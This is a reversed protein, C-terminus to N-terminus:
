AASKGSMGVSTGLGSSVSEGIKSLIGKGRQWGAKAEAYADPLSRIQFPDVANLAINKPSFASNVQQKLVNGAATSAGKMTIGGGQENSLRNKEFETPKASQALRSPALVHNLYQAQEDPKAAAFDKDISSLYKMQDQPQAALFDKDQLASALPNGMNHLREPKLSRGIRLRLRRTALLLM